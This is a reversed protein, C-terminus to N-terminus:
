EMRTTLVFGPDPDWPWTNNVSFEYMRGEVVSITVVIESDGSVTRNDYTLSYWGIDWPSVRWNVRVVLTGSAPATLRFFM